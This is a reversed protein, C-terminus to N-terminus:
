ASGAGGAGPAGPAPPRPASAHAGAGGVTTQYPDPVSDNGAQRAEVYRTLHLDLGEKRMRLDIYIVAIAGAQVVTTIAGIVLSVLLMVGYSVIAATIAGGNLQGTGTPDVLTVAVGYVLGLPATVIQSVVNVILTILIQVGFTRWFFHTTLSWSRRVAVGIPASELVIVSPVLSTKTYLWAGLVLAGLSGLVALVIGLAIMVAGGIMVFLVVIGALVAVILLLAVAVIFVWGVLPWLRRRAVRWLARMTLKEGLTGRAVDTVIIGQLLASAVLSLAIPVLAAVIIGGVAGSMVADRDATDAMSVRWLLLASVGGVVVISVILVVAQILLASGFVAKPNRRLEAFPAGLLAGFSLPRLPILGPKPPPTWGQGYGPQGYGPQGYGQQGHGGGTGYGAGQGGDASSQEHGPAYEGYRPQEPRPERPTEPPQWSQDDTM